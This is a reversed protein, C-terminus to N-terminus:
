YSDNGQQCHHEAERYLCCLGIPSIAVANVGYGESRLIRALACDINRCIHRLHVFAEGNRSHLVAQSRLSGIYLHEDRFVKVSVRDNCLFCGHRVNIFTPIFHCQGSRILNVAFAEVDSIAIRTLIHRHTDGRCEGLIGAPSVEAVAPLVVGGLHTLCSLCKGDLCADSAVVEREVKHEVGFLLIDCHLFTLRALKIERHLVKTSYHHAVQLHSIRNITALLGNAIELCCHARVDVLRECDLM